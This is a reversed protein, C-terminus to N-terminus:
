KPLFSGEIIGKGDEFRCAIDEVANRILSISIPDGDSLPNFDSGEFVVRVNMRGSQEQYEYTFLADTQEKYHEQLIMVGLEEIIMTMRYIVSYDIMHHHGFTELQTVAGGYDFSMGKIHLSLVKLHGIFQRTKDKVPHSFIQDPSGEEYVIGEDLYFVRNSVDRAFNMEHTVIVMTMGNRALNRIVSLVEGITTPDLASTPEDFLIMEPDMAVERAIAVRQQQGGSLESPYNLAKESLGVKELVEMSYAFAEEKSRGLLEEQALMINEVITLHSFLNFSQFVMGVKKRLEKLDYGSALINEGKFLIEGGDATELQNLLKLFTSKGTGSPGIVAIIDGKRIECNFDKVPEANEYSKKLHSVQYLIQGSRSADELNEMTENESPEKKRKNQAMELDAAQKDDKVANLEGAEKAAMLAEVKQLKRSGPRIMKELKRLLAILIVSLIFYIVATLILPFFAEYTRSRIIDSARTLDIVSIYGAVSTLKVLAIFQGTYVPLIHILAQPLVVSRFGHVESFGMAKAAMGQGEPVAEIGNRFMESTYASFDISFGVVCVWFAPFEASAFVIYYLVLLLVVIPIGRFIKIYTDAIGALIRNERMRLFCIVAGLITGFCSSLISLGLTVRFGSLLIKWRDEKIINKIFSKKISDIFGAVGKPAESTSTKVFVYCDEHYIPETINISEMREPTRCITDAIVDYEGSNLGAVESVYPMSFYSPKYGYEQCFSNMLEIFFGTLEDGIYFSNPEWGGITAIKLVGKSGDFTYDDMCQKGNSTKWKQQIEEFKGSDELKKFWENLENCLKEGEANKQTGFGHEFEMVPEEYHTIDPYDDKEVSFLNPYGLAADVKGTHLANMVDAFTDYYSYEGKPFSELAADYLESGTLIAIKRGPEKIESLSYAPNKDPNKMVAVASGGEYTPEAYYVSEAREETYAIGGCALDCKGSSVAPLIGGFDMEATEVRYGKEKCFHAFIDVDVGALEGDKIFAFPVMTTDVALRLTGKSGDLSKLDVKKKDEDPGFWIKQIEDYEGNAKIKKIYDSYEDCLAKGKQNKSFIAGAKVTVSIREHLATIDTSSIMVYRILADSDAYADVKGARLANLMDANNSYYYFEAEPLSDQAQIAQVSGTVVGIRKHELQSLSTYYERKSETKKGCAALFIILVLLISVLIYSNSYRTKKFM